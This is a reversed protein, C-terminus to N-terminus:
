AFTELRERVIAQMQAARDAGASGNTLPPPLALNDLGRALAAVLEDMTTDAAAAPIGVTSAFRKFDARKLREDKGTIKLALHDYQMNPFVRTTVADYLPAMRVSNFHGSGPEAIKLVAMNKLHMDPNGLLENVVLGAPM